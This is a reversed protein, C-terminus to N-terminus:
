RDGAEAAVASVIRLRSKARRALREAEGARELWDFMRQVGHRTTTANRCNRIFVMQIKNVRDAVYVGFDTTVITADPFGLMKMAQSETVGKHCAILHVPGGIAGAAKIEEVHRYDELFPQGVMERAAPVGMAAPVATCHFAVSRRFVELAVGQQYASAGARGKLAKHLTGTMAAQRQAFDLLDWQLSSRDVFESQAAKIVGLEILKDIGARLADLVAARADDLTAKPPSFLGLKNVYEQFSENRAKSRGAPKIWPVTVMRVKAPAFNMAQMLEAHCIGVDDDAFAFGSDGNYIVLILDHEDVQELSWAWFDNIGWDSSAEENITVEFLPEGFLELGELQRKIEKRLTALKMRGDDFAVTSEGRSSIMVKIKRPDAM